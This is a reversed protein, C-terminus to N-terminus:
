RGRLERLVEPTLGRERLEQEYEPDSYSQEESQEGRREKEAALIMRHELIVQAETM